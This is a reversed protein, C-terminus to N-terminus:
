EPPTHFRRFKSPFLRLLAPKGVVEVGLKALVYLFLAVLAQETGPFDPFAIKIVAYLLAVFAALISYEIRKTM